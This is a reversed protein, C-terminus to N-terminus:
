GNVKCVKAGWDALDLISVSAPQLEMRSLNDLSVGLYYFIAMKIPDAHSFVAVKQGDHAHRLRELAEVFRAQVEIVLEGTPLRNGLRYTHHTKWLTDKELEALTKGTFDGANWEHVGPETRVELGLARALPQATEAAREMPSSYIASIGEDKLREAIQRAQEQGEANLHVGPMRGAIAKNVYDNLGHRILYFTTM